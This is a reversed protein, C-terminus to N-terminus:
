AQLGAMYRTRGGRRVKAIGADRAGEVTGSVFAHAPGTCSLDVM